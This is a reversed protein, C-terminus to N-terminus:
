LYVLEFHMRSDDACLTHMWEINATCDGRASGSLDNHRGQRNTTQQM